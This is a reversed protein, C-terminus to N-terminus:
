HLVNASCTSSRNEDDTRQGLMLLLLQLVRRPGDASARDSVHRRRLSLFIWCLFTMTGLTKRITITNLHYQRNARLLVRKCNQLQMFVSGFSNLPFQLTGVGAQSPCTGQCILEVNM